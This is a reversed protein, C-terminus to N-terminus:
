KVRTWDVKKDLKVKKDQWKGKVLEGSSICYLGKEKIIYQQRFYYAKGGDESHSDDKETIFLTDKIIKYTCNLTYNLECDYSFAKGNEKLKLTNVCGKAIKRNWQSNIWKSNVQLVILTLLMLCFKMM